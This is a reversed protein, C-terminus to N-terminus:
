KFLILIEYPFTFYVLRTNRPSTEEGDRWNESPNAPPKEPRPLHFIKRENRALGIRSLHSEFKLAVIRLAYGPRKRTLLSYRTHAREGRIGRALSRAFPREVSWGVSRARLSMKGRGNTASTIEGRQFKM